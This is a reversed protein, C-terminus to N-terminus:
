TTSNQPLDTDLNQLVLKEHQKECDKTFQDDFQISKFTEMLPQISEVVSQFLKTIDEELIEPPETKDPYTIRHLEFLPLALVDNPYPVRVMPRDGNVNRVLDVLHQMAFQIKFLENQIAESKSQITQMTNLGLVIQDNIHDTQKTIAIDARKVSYKLSDKARKAKEVKDHMDTLKQELTNVKDEGAKLKTLIENVTEYLDPVNACAAADCLQKTEDDIQEYHKRLALVETTERVYRDPAMAEVNEDKPLRKFITQENMLLNRKYASITTQRKSSENLSRKEMIKLKKKNAKLSNDAPMGLKNISDLIQTQENVESELSNLTNAYQLSEDTLRNLVSECDNVLNEYTQIQIEANALLYDLNKVKMQDSLQCSETYTKVDQLEALKILQHEYSQSLQNLEHRLRDLEKRKEFLKCECDEIIQDRSKEPNAVCDNRSKLVNKVMQFAGIRLENLKLQKEKVEQQLKKLLKKNEKSEAEHKARELDFNLQFIKEICKYQDIKDTPNWQLDPRPRLHPMKGGFYDYKKGIAKSQM